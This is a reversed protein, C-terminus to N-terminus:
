PHSISVVSPKWMNNGVHPIGDASCCEATTQEPMVCLVDSCSGVTLRFRIVRSQLSMAQMSQSLPRALSTCLIVQSRPMPRCTTYILLHTSTQCRHAPM